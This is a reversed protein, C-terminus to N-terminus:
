KFRGSLSRIARKILGFLGGRRRSGFGSLIGSLGRRMGGTGGAETQRGIPRYGAGTGGAESPRYGLSQTPTPAPPPPTTPRYASQAPPAPSGVSAPTTPSPAPPKSVVETLGRIEETGRTGGAPTIDGLPAPSAAEIQRQTVVTGTPTRWAEEGIGPEIQSPIHSTEGPGMTGVPRSTINAPSQGWVGQSVPPRVPFTTSPAPIYMGLAGIRREETPRAGTFLRGALGGGYRRRFM